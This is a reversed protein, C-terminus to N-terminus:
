AKEEAETAKLQAINQRTAIGSPLLFNRFHGRKVKVWNGKAGLKPHDKLLFVDLKQKVFAFATEGPAETCVCFILALLALCCRSASRRRRALRAPQLMPAERAM